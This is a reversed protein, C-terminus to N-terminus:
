EAPLTCSMRSLTARSSSNAAESTLLVTGDDAIVVSEGQSENLPELDVEDPEV